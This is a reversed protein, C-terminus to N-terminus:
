SDSALILKTCINVYIYLNSMNEINMIYM